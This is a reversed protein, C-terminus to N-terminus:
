KLTYGFNNKDLIDLQEDTLKAYCSLSDVQVMEFEFLSLIKFIDERKLLVYKM